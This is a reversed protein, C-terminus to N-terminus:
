CSDDMRWARGDLRQELQRCKSAGLVSFTPAAIAAAHNIQGPLVEGKGLQDKSSAAGL